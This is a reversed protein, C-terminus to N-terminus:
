INRAYKESSRSLKVLTAEAYAHAKEGKPLDDWFNGTKLPLWSELQLPLVLGADAWRKRFAGRDSALVPLRAAMAELRGEWDKKWWLSRPDKIKLSKMWIKKDPFANM